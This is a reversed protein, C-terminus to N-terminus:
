FDVCKGWIEWDGYRTPERGKPGGVEGTYPNVYPGFKKISLIELLQEQTLNQVYEKMDNLFEDMIYCEKNVQDSSTDIINDKDMNNVSITTPMEHFNNRKTMVESKMDSCSITSEDKFPKDPIIMESDAFAVSDLMEETVIRVGWSNEKNSQADSGTNPELDPIKKESNIYSVSDRMDESVVNNHSLEENEPLVNFKNVPAVTNPKAYSSSHSTVNNSKVHFHTSPIVEVCDAVCDYRTNIEFEKYSKSDPEAHGLSLIQVERPKDFSQCYSDTDSSEVNSDNHFTIEIHGAQSNSNFIFFDSQEHTHSKVTMVQSELPSDSQTEVHRTSMKESSNVDFPSSILSSRLQVVDQESHCFNTTIEESKLRSHSCTIGAEHNKNLYRHILAKPEVHFSNSPIIQSDEYSNNRSIALDLKVHESNANAQNPTSEIEFGSQSHNRSTITNLAASNNSQQIVNRLISRATFRLM